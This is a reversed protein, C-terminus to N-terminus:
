LSVYVFATKIKYFIFFFPFYFFPNTNETKNRNLFNFHCTICPGMLTHLQQQIGFNFISIVLSVRVLHTRTDGTMEVKKVSIFCFICIWKEIKRKEKDKVFYFCCKHIYTQLKIGFHSISIVTPVSVM